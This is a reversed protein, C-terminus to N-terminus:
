SKDGNILWEKRCNFVKSLKEFNWRRPISIGRRWKSVTKPEVDILNAFSENNLGMELIKENIRNAISM